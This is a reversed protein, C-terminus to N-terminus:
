TYIRSFVMVSVAIEWGDGLRGYSGDDGAMCHSLDIYAVSHTLTYSGSLYWPFEGNPLHRYIQLYATQLWLEHSVQYIIM